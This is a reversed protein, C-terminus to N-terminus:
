QPRHHGAREVDGLTLQRRHDRSHNRRVRRRPLAARLRYMLVPSESVPSLLTPPLLYHSAAMPSARDGIEKRRDGSFSGASPTFGDAPTPGPSQGLAKPSGLAGSDAFTPILTDPLPPQTGSRCRGPRGTAGPDRASDFLMSAKATAPYRRSRSDHTLSRANAMDSSM